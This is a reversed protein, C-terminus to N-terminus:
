HQVHVLAQRDAYHMLLLDSQRVAEKFLPRDIPRAHSLALRVLEVQLVTRALTVAREVDSLGRGLYLAWSGVVKAALYRHVVPAFERWAAAARNLWLDSLRDPAPPWSWPVPVAARADDFLSLSPLDDNTDRRLAEIRDGEWRAVEGWTLLRRGDADAPPLSERADLGEPMAGDGGIAPGPVIRVPARDGFLLEAATPCFHSLTVHVGRADIVCVFPFHACAAPRHPYIQCGGRDGDGPIPRPRHFVCAGQPGVALMGAVDAPARAAPELWRISM